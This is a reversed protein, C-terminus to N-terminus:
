VVKEKVMTVENGKENYEVSDFFAKMLFLGRGTTQVLGAETTPDPVAQHEFGNGEDRIKVVVKKRDIEFTVFVKKNTPHVAQEQEALKGINEAGNETKVIGLNGHAMANILAEGFAMQLRSTENADWGASDLRAGFAESAADVLGIDTPLPWYNGTFPEISNNVKPVEPTM